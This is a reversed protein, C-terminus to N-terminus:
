EVSDPPFAGEERRARKAAEELQALEDDSIHHAIVMGDETEYVRTGQMGESLIIDPWYEEIPTGTNEIPLEYIKHKTVITRNKEM